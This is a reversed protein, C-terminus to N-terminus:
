WIQEENTFYFHYDYVWTMPVNHPNFVNCSIKQTLLDQWVSFAKTNHIAIIELCLGLEYIDM